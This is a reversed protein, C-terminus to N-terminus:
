GRLAAAFLAGQSVENAIDVPVGRTIMRRFARAGAPGAAQVAPPLVAANAQRLAASQAKLPMTDRLAEHGPCGVLIDPPAVQGRGQMLTYAAELTKCEAAIRSARDAMPPHPADLPQPPAGCAALGLAVTLIGIARM